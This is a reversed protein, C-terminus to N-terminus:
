GELGNRQLCEHFMGQQMGPNYYGKKLGNETGLKTARDISSLTCDKRIQSPRFQFWYFTVSVFIATLALVAWRFRIKM